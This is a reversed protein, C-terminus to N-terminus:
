ASLKSLEFDSQLCLTLVEFQSSFASFYGIEGLNPNISGRDNFRWVEQALDDFLRSFM